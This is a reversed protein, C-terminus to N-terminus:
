GDEPISAGLNPSTLLYKIPLLPLHLLGDSAKIYCENNMLITNTNGVLSANDSTEQLTQELSASSQIKIM